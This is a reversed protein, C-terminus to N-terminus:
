RWHRGEEVVEAVIEVAHRVVRLTDDDLEYCGPVGYDEFDRAKGRIFRLIADREVAATIGHEALKDASIELTKGLESM